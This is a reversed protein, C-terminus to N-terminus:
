KNTPLLLRRMRNSIAAARKASGEGLKSLSELLAAKEEDKMLGMIKVAQEDTMEALIKAAADPAMAGYLKALKKLNAVEDTQVHVVNQDFEHQLQAVVQTIVMIERREVDLRVALEDLQRQRDTLQDSRDKLDVILQDIEINKFNWSAGPEGIVDWRPAVVRRISVRPLSWAFMMTLLYAIGGVFAATWRSQLIQIM